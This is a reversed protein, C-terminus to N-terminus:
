LQRPQYLRWKNPLMTAFDKGIANIPLSAIAQRLEETLIDALPSDNTVSNDTGNSVANDQDIIPVIDAMQGINETFRSASTLELSDTLPVWFPAQQM